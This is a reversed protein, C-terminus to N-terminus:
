IRAFVSERHHALYRRNADGIATLMAAPSIGVAVLQNATLRPSLVIAGDDNFSILGTDFAADYAPGLIFGNFVDLREQNDSARWPKIHSARLLVEVDLGTVACKGSWHKLLDRRWRGQGIRAQILAERTTKDPVSQALTDVILEKTPTVVDLRDCILQGAKPPIAFLYGQVGTKLKTIPSNREPLLPLLDDM